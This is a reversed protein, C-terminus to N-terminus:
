QEDNNQNFIDTRTWKTHINMNEFQITRNLQINKSLYKFHLAIDM